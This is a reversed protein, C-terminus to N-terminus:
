AALETIAVTTVDRHFLASIARETHNETPAAQGGTLSRSRHHLPIQRHRPRQEGREIVWEDLLAAPANLRFRQAAAEADRRRGYPHASVAAKAGDVRMTWVWMGGRDSTFDFVADAASTRVVDIAITVADKDVYGHTSLTVIRYNRALFRWYYFGDAAHFRQFRM